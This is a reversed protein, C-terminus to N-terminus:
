PLWTWAALVDEFAAQTTTADGPPALENIVLGRGDRVTFLALVRLGGCGFAHLVAPTGAFTVPRALEPTEPCGHWAAKLRQGAAAYGALDLTTPAGYVFMLRSGALAFRDTDPGDSNIQSTGDWPRVAARPSSAVESAPLVARYGYAASDFVVPAASAEAPTSGPATAPSADSPRSSPFPSPTVAAQSARPSAPVDAPAVSRAAGSGCAAVALALALTRTALITRRSTGCPIQPRM